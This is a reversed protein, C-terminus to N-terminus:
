AYQNIAAGDSSSGGSIDVCNGNAVVVITYTDSSSAVPTFRFSQNGGGNCSWQILQLGSTSAGRPVDVCNSNGQNVVTSTFAAAANATGTLLAPTLAAVLVAVGALSITRVRASAM